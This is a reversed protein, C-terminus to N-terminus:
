IGAAVEVRKRMIRGYERLLLVAVALWAAILILNALAFGRPGFGLWTTGAFVLVAQLVDGTRVFFTDVAQKAKYKEDRSTPLWVLQRATNMVSYDTANEAIKAWRMVALGAGAAILSYAGLAVLPLALLVGAMGVHKVIRSVLFAQILLGLTNFYFSFRGYFSGIFADRAPSPDAGVAADAAAVVSTDVIYNGTTNVINLLVILAALLRLYSSAFVLKFGGAAASLPVAAAAAQTPRWSERRDVLWYIALHVCLIASAIHMMNYPSMGADFLREAIKAGLPAGLGAGIYIFPFLREGAERRYIDNAYSWFQAITALSFIGIWIYYVLGVHPVGAHGALSFLEINVIFFLIFGFILKWRDVRSSFWGYLPVFGILTLAQGASAYSKLEAGSALILPERVTRLVYYGLLLLFLNVFMLLATGAEGAEVDTFPRLLRDLIGPAPEHESGREPSLEGPQEM